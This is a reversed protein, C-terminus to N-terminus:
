LSMPTPVCRVFFKLAIYAMLLFAATFAVLVTLDLFFHHPEFGLELLIM